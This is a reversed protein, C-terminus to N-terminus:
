RSKPPASAPSASVTRGNMGGGGSNAASVPTMPPTDTGVVSARSSTSTSSANSVQRAAAHPSFSLPLSDADVGAPIHLPLGGSGGGSGGSGGGMGDGGGGGSGGSGGSGGGVGLMSLWGGGGAKVKEVNRLEDPSFQLITAIVPILAKRQPHTPDFSLFRVLISKLYDLNVQSRSQSRSNDGVQDRLFTNEDKLSKLRRKDSLPSSLSLSLCPSLLYLLQTHTPHPSPTSTPHRRPQFHQTTHTQQTYM